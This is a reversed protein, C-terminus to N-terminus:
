DIYPYDNESNAICWTSTFENSFRCGWDLELVYTISLYQVTITDGERDDNYVQKLIVIKDAAQADRIEKWTKNLINPNEESPEVIFVPSPVDVVVSKLNTVDYTNNDTLTQTGSVLESATVTVSEGVKTEGIIYGASNTVSPTITISNNSVEGKTATPIGETGAPIIKSVDLGYYGSPVDVTVDDITIDNSNRRSIDSGVYNSSIADITINELAKKDAIEITQTMESPEYEYSGKFPETYEYFINTNILSQNKNEINQTPEEKYSSPFTRDNSEYNSNPTTNQIYTQQTLPKM